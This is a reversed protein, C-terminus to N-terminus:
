EKLKKIRNKKVMDDIFESLTLWQTGNMHIHEIRKVLDMYVRNPQVPKSFFKQKMLEMFEEEFERSFLEIFYEPNEAYLRM